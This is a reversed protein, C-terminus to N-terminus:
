CEQVPLAWYVNLPDNNIGRQAANREEAKASLPALALAVAVAIILKRM